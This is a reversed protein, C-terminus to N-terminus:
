HSVEEKTHPDDEKRIRAKDAEEDGADWRIERRVGEKRHLDEEVKTHPVCRRCDGKRKTEAAENRRIMPETNRVAENPDAELFVPLDEVNKTKPDAAGTKSRLDKHLVGEVELYGTM